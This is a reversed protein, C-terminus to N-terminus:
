KALLKLAAVIYDEIREPPSVVAAVAKTASNADYGLAILAAVTEQRVGGIAAATEGVEPAFGEFTEETAIKEKLELIIRQATKKGLGPVRALAVENGTVIATAVQAAPMASLASLAVKPGVRSVSILRKFLSKEEATLFGFLSLAEQAIHMYASLQTTEGKKLRSLTQTSAFLEYGVGGVDLVVRDAAIEAVTGRMFSFM